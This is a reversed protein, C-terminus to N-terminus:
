YGRYDTAKLEITKPPVVGNIGKQAYGMSLFLFRLEFTSVVTFDTQAKSLLFLEANSMASENANIKNKKNTINFQILEKTRTALTDGDILLLFIRLYDKYQMGDSNSDSDTVASEVMSTIAGTLSFTWDEGTTKVLKTANGKRMTVVDVVSEGLAYVVRALEGIAIAFPGAWSFAGKIATIENRVSEVVFTSVYNLVFRVLLIVGAAAMLNEVANDSGHYLYELESQFFYNVDTSMPINSMTLESGDSPTTYCSFMESDYGVLLLKNAISVGLNSLQDVFTSDLAEETQNKAVGDNGWDGELGYTEMNSDTQGSSYYKAGAPDFSIGKFLEQIQGLINNLQNKMNDKDSKNGTGASGFLQDLVEYFEENKTNYFQKDQFEAYDDPVHIRFSNIAHYRELPDRPDPNPVTTQTYYDIQYDMQWLVTFSVCDAYTTGYNEWDRLWDMSAQLLYFDVDKMAVGMAELDYKLLARYSELDAQMGSVLEESCNGSELKADLDDMKQKLELKETDGRKLLNVLEDLMTQYEKLEEQYENKYEELGIVTDRNVAYGEVWEGNDNEYGRIWRKRTGGRVLVRLNSEITKFEQRLDELKEDNYSYPNANETADEYLITFENRTKVMEVLTDYIDQQITNFVTDMEPFLDQAGNIENIKNYIEKYTKELKEVDDDIELKDKIVEADNKIKEFKELRDLVEEALAVPARFKAYDEIQRRLVALEGLNQTGTVTPSGLQSGYLLQLTGLENPTNEGYLSFYVYDTIMSGLEEDEKAVGFLGYIDQLLADYQTMVSNSALQNADQLVSKATYIRALDVATGSVLIAPILLLTVIVTVAGKCKKGLKM